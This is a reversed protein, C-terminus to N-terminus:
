EGESFPDAPGGYPDTTPHIPMTGYPRMAQPEGPFDGTMQDAWVMQFGQITGFVALAGIFCDSAAPMARFRRSADVIQEPEIPTQQDIHVLDTLMEHMQDEVFPGIILLEPRNFLTRGVTYAWPLNKTLQNRTDNYHVTFGHDLIADRTEEM